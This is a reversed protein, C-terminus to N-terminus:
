SCRTYTGSINHEATSARNRKVHAMTFRDMCVLADPDIYIGGGNGHGRNGAPAGSGRAGRIASNSIVRCNRLSATGGAIYIGGGFASGGSTAPSPRGRGSRASRGAGGFADNKRLSCGEITLSGSSYIAGGFSHGRMGGSAINSRLTVNNMHLTGQNLIAGGRSWVGSGRAWGRKVTLNELRLSAGNAVDFLRFPPTEVSANRQITANNGLITLREGAEIVPLGTAGNTTNNVETLTFIRGAVLTITDPGRTQNSARIDAILDAVDTSTFNAWLCRTELREMLCGRTM